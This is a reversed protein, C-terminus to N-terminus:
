AYADRTAEKTGGRARPELRPVVCLVPLIGLEEIDDGDLLTDDVAIRAIVYGITLLVTTAFGALALGAGYVPHIGTAVAVSGAAGLILVTLAGKWFMLGRSALSRMRAIHERAALPGRAEGHRIQERMSVNFDTSV